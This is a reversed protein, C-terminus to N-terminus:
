EETDEIPIWGDILLQHATTREGTIATLWSNFLEIDAEDGEVAIEVQTHFQNKANQGDIRIYRLKIAM